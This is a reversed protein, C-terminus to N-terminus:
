KEKFSFHETMKQRFGANELFDKEHDTLETFLASVRATEEGSRILEKSFRAGMILGISDIIISKGAGTEGTLVSFGNDFEICEKKVIAINEISLEKLM